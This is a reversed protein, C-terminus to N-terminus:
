KVSLIEYEIKRLFWPEQCAPARKLEEIRNSDWVSLVTKLLLGYLEKRLRAARIYAAASPFERYFYEEDVSLMRM